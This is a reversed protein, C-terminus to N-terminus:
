EEELLLMRYGVGPETIILKPNAPNEEIKRRIQLMYVRLYSEDPQMQTGWIERIIQSYTVVRGAYKALLCLLSYETPTLKVETDAVTVIRRVFDVSLAGTRFIGQEADPVVTRLVARIRALLEGTGFPKTLYDNAGADLLDIKDQETNRVSLIIVPVASTERLKKLVDLGDIDPLSLDLIICDPHSMRIMALGENGDVAEKVRYGHAELSLRLFRRIQLEDDIILIVPGDSM